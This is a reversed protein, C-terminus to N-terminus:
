YMVITPKHDEPHSDIGEEYYFDEAFEKITKPVYITSCIGDLAEPEVVEVGAPLRLEDSYFGVFAANRLYKLNDPLHLKEIPVWQFCGAPIEELHNPLFVETLNTGCFASEGLSKLNNPFNIQILGDSMDFAQEEISIIGDPLVVSFEPEEIGAMALRGITDVTDPLKITGKVEKCHILVRGDPTTLFGKKYIFRTGHKKNVLMRFISSPQKETADVPIDEDNIVEDYYLDYDLLHMDAVDFEVPQFDKAILDFGFLLDFSDWGINVERRYRYVGEKGKVKEIFRDDHLECYVSGKLIMKECDRNQEIWEVLPQKGYEFTSTKM